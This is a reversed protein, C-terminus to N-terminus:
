NWIYSMTRGRRNGLASWLLIVLGRTDAHLERKWSELFRETCPDSRSSQVAVEQIDRIARTPSHRLAYHTNKAPGETSVDLRFLRLDSIIRQRRGLADHWFVQSAQM